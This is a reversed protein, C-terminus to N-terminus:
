ILCDKKLIAISDSYFIFQNASSEKIIQALYGKKINHGRVIQFAITGEESQIFEKIARLTFTTKGIGFDVNIM